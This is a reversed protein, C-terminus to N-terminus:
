GWRMREGDAGDCGNEILRMKDTSFEDRPTWEGDAGDRGNEIERNMLGMADMRLFGCRTVEGDAGDCGNEMLGM